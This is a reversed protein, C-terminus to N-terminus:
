AAGRRRVMQGREGGCLDVGDSRWTGRRRRARAAALRHIVVFIVLDLVHTAPTFQAGFEVSSSSPDM